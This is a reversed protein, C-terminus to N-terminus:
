VHNDPLNFFVFFALCASNQIHFLLMIRPLQQCYLGPCKDFLLTPFLVIKRDCPRLCRGLEAKFMAFSVNKMSTDLRCSRCSELCRVLAFQKELLAFITQHKPRKSYSHGISHGILQTCQRSMSKPDSCIYTLKGTALVCIQQCPNEICAHQNETRKQHEIHIPNRCAPLVQKEPVVLHM